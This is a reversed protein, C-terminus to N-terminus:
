MIIHLCLCSSSHVSASFGILTYQTKLNIRNQTPNKACNSVSIVESEFPTVEVTDKEQQEDQMVIAVVTSPFSTM